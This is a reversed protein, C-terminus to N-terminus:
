APAGAPFVAAIILSAAIFYAFALLLGLGAGV